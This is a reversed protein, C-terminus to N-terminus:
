TRLDAERTRIAVNRGKRVDNEGGWLIVLRRQMQVAV